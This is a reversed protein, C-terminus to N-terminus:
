RPQSGAGWCCGADRRCGFQQRPEALDRLNEILGTSLLSAPGLVVVLMVVTVLAAAPTGRGGLRKRLWVFIPYLAVALIVGWLAVTIFPGILYLSWGALLGVFALRIAIDVARSDSSQGPAAHNPGAHNPATHDPTESM